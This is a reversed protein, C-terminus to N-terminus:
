KCRNKKRLTRNSQYIDCKSETRTGGRRLEHEKIEKFIFALSFNYIFQWKIQLRFCVGVERISQTHSLKRRLIENIHAFDLLFLFRLLKKKM